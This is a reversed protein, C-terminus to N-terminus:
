YIIIITNGSYGGAIIKGFYKKGRHHNDIVVFIRKANSLDINGKFNLKGFHNIIDVKETQSLVKGKADIEFKFSDQSESENIFADRDVNQVLEEYTSGESYVKVINRTLIARECIKQAINSTEIETIDIELLPDLFVDGSYNKDYKLEVKFMECISILEPLCFQYFLSKRIFNAIYKM